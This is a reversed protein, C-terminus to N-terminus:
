CTSAHGDINMQHTTGTLRFLRGGNEGSVDYLCANNQDNQNKVTVRVRRIDWNDPSEGFGSHFNLDILLHALKLDDYSRAVNLGCSIDSHETDNNWSDDDRNKLPCEQSTGDHFQLFVSASSDTRLDDGGTFIDFVIVQYTTAPPPPPPEEPRPSPQPTMRTIPPPAAQMAPGGLAPGGILASLSAAFILASRNM